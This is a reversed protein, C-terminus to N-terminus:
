MAIGGQVEVNVTTRGEELSDEMIACTTDTTGRILNWLVQLVTGCPLVNSLKSRCSLALELFCPSIKPVQADLQTVSVYKAILSLLKIVPM